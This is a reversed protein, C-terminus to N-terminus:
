FKMLAGTHHKISEPQLSANEATFLRNLNEVDGGGPFFHIYLMM